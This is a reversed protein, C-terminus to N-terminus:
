SPSIELNVIISEMPTPGGGATYTLAAEFFDGAAVAVVTSDLVGAVATRATSTDDLTIAATLVTVGNKLIDIAMSEGAAAVVISAASAAVITGSKTAIGLPITESAATVQSATLILSPILDTVDGAEAVVSLTIDGDAILEQLQQSLALEELSILEGIDVSGGGPITTRINPASKNIFLDLSIQSSRTNTLLIQM